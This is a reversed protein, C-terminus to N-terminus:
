PFSKINSSTAGNTFFFHHALFYSMPNAKSKIIHDYIPYAVIPSVILGLSAIDQINQLSKPIFRDLAELGVGGLCSRLSVVQADYIRHNLDDYIRRARDIGGLALYLIFGASTVRDKPEEGQIIFEM